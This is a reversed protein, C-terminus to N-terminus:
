SKVGTVLWVMLVKRGQPNTWRNETCDAEM